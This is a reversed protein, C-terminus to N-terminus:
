WYIEFEKCFEDVERELEVFFVFCFSFSKIVLKVKISRWSKKKGILGSLKFLIIKWGFLCEIFINKIVMFDGESFEDDVIVKKMIFSGFGM